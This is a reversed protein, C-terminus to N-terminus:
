KAFFHTRKAPGRIIKRLKGASFMTEDYTQACYIQAHACDRFATHARVRACSLPFVPGLWQVIFLTYNSQFNSFEKKPKSPFHPSTLSLTPPPSSLHPSTHQPTPLSTICEERKGLVGWVEGGVIKCERSREWCRGVDGVEACM